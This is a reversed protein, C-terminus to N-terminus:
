SRVLLTNEDDDIDTRQAVIAKHKGFSEDYERALQPNEHMAIQLADSYSVDPHAQQYRCAAEDLAVGPDHKLYELTRTIRDTASHLRAIAAAKFTSTM